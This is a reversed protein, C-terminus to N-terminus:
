DTAIDIGVHIVMDCNDCIYIGYAVGGQTEYGDDCDMKLHNEQEDVCNPCFTHMSWLFGTPGYEEVENRETMGNM